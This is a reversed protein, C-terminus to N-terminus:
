QRARARRDARLDHPTRVVPPHVVELSLEFPPGTKGRLLSEVQGIRAVIQHGRADRLPTSPDEHVRGAISRIQALVDAREIGQDRVVLGLTQNEAAAMVVLKRGVPLDDDLVIVLAVVAGLDM